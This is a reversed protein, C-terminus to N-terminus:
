ISKVDLGLSERYELPTMEIIERFNRYFAAKSNFGCEEALEEIILNYNSGKLIECAYDIRLGNIYRLFSQKYYQSFLQSLHHKPIKLDSALKDLNLKPDLYKKAGIYRDVKTAYLSMEAEQLGSKQYLVVEENNEIVEGGVQVNMASSISEKLRRISHLYAYIVAGLMSSFIMLGSSLAATPIGKFIRATVVKTMFFSLTLLIVTITLILNKNGLVASGKKSSGIYAVYVAYGLWSLAMSGYLVAFYILWENFVSFKFLLYIYFPIAIVFPLLHIVIVKKDIVKNISTLYAFFLIPGYLLGFPAARDIYMYELPSMRVLFAHSVHVIVIILFLQIVRDFQEKFNISINIHLSITAFIFIVILLIPIFSM